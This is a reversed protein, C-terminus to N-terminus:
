GNKHLFVRKGRGLIIFCSKKPERTKECLVLAKARRDPDIVTFNRFYAGGHILGELYLGESSM